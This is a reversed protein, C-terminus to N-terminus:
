PNAYFFAKAFGVPTISRWMSKDFEVKEFMGTEKLKKKVISMDITGLQDGVDKKEPKTFDGWLCTRKSYAEIEPNDLWGAYEHPQFTMEYPGIWNPLRGVPNELVWWDPDCVAVFRLCADVLQMGEIVAEEGKEDWWRSGSTTFHTCPPQAIIGHVEGPYEFLRVDDGYKIDVQIVDYARDRYFQSWVGTYDCLSLIKNKM